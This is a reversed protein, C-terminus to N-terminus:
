RGQADSRQSEHCVETTSSAGGSNSSNQRCCVAFVIPSLDLRRRSVCTQNMGIWGVVAGPSLRIFRRTGCDQEVSAPVTFLWSGVCSSRTSSGAFRHRNQKIEYRKSRQKRQKCADNCSCKPEQDSTKSREHGRAGVWFTAAVGRDTEVRMMQFPGTLLRM